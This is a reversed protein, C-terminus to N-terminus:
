KSTSDKVVNIDEIDFTNHRPPYSHASPKNRLVAELWAVVNESEAPFGRIVDLFLQQRDLETRTLGIIGFSPQTKM